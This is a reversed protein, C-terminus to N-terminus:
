EWKKKRNEYLFWNIYLRQFQLVHQEGSLGRVFSSLNDFVSWNINHWFIYFMYIYLFFFYFHFIGKKTTFHVTEFSWVTLSRFRLIYKTYKTKREKHTKSHLKWKRDTNGAFHLLPTKDNENCFFVTLISKYMMKTLHSHSYFLSISIVFFVVFLIPVFAKWVNKYYNM